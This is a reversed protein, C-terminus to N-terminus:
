TNEQRFELLARSTKTIVSVVPDNNGNGIFDTFFIPDIVYSKEFPIYDIFECIWNPHLQLALDPKM